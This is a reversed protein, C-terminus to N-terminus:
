IPKGAHCLSHSDSRSDTCPHCMVAMVLCVMVCIDYWVNVVVAVCPGCCYCYCGGGVGGVAVTGRGAAAAAAAAASLPLFAAESFITPQISIHNHDTSAVAVERKVRTDWGHCLTTTYHHHESIYM